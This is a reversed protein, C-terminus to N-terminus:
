ETCCALALPKASPGIPAACNVGHKGPNSASTFGKLNGAVGWSNLTVASLSHGVGSLRMNHSVGSFAASYQRM